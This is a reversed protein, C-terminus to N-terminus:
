GARKIGGTVSIRRLAQGAEKNVIADRNICPADANSKVFGLATLNAVYDDRVRM